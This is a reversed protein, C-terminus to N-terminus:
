TATTFESQFDNNKYCHLKGEGDKVIWDGPNLTEGNVDTSRMDATRMGGVAAHSDKGEIWRSIYHADSSAGSFRVAELEVTPDKKSKFKM